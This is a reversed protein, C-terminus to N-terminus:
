VTPIMYYTAKESQSKESLLIWKLKKWTKKCSLLKKKFCQIINWQKSTGCNIWEGLLSMKTAELIQCNQIFRRYVDIHMNKQTSMNKVGKPLYWLACNSSQITPTHKAKYSVALSDELTATGNQM